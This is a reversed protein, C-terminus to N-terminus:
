WMFKFRAQTGKEQARGVLGSLVFVSVVAFLVLAVKREKM